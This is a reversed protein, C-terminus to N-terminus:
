ETTADEYNKNATGSFHPTKKVIRRRGEEQIIDFLYKMDNADLWDLVKKDNIL